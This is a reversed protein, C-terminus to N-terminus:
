SSAATLNSSRCSSTSLRRIWSRFSQCCLCRPIAAVCGARNVRISGGTVLEIRKLSDNLGDDNAHRRVRLELPVFETFRVGDNTYAEWLNDRAMDSTAFAYKTTM